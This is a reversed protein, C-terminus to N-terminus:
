LACEGTDVGRRRDGAEQLAQEIETEALAYAEEPDSASAAFIVGRVVGATDVFPGGSNGQHVESRLVYIDRSVQRRSYIDRGLAETRIRVRAVSTRRDGGGPYGIAAGDTGREAPDPDVSLAGGRLDPVRLVAIDTDTDMYVVTAGFRGGGADSAQIVRTNKTGAVVHAATIVLDESVPFGSGDVVGNCGDGEIKYTLRAAARIDPDRAVGAPAKEVGPALSPNLEAFVEPFGTRSLFSGIGALFDPPTDLVSYTARLIASGRVSAELEPVRKAPVSLFWAVIISLLGAVVAGVVADARKVRHSTIKRALKYGGFAVLAEVMFATGLFAILSIVARATRGEPDLIRMIKPAILGGLVIGATFGGWSFMQLVVGRRYGSFLAGLLLPVILLDIWNM